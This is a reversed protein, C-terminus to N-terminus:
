RVISIQDHITEYNSRRGLDGFQLQTPRAGYIQRQTQMDKLSLKYAVQTTTTFNRFHNYDIPLDQRTQAGVHAASTNTSPHMHFKM